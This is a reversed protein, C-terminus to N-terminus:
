KTVDEKAQRRAAQRKLNRLEEARDLQRIRVALTTAAIALLFCFGAFWNAVTM